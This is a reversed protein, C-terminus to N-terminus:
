RYGRWAPSAGAPPTQWAWTPLVHVSVSTSRDAYQIYLTTQGEALAEVLGDQVLRAVSMNGIEYQLGPLDNIRHAGDPFQGYVSVSRLSGAPIRLPRQEPAVDLATPGVAPVVTISVDRYDVRGDATGAVVDILLPGLADGPVTYQFQAPLDTAFDIAASAATLVLLTVSTVAADGSVQIDISQGAQVIAGSTPNDISLTIVPAAFLRSAAAASSSRPRYDYPESGAQFGVSSFATDSDPPANLTEMVHQIVDNHRTSAGHWVGSRQWSVDLGGQQSTLTVILDSAPDLFIADLLDTGSQYGDLVAALPMLVFRLLIELGDTPFPEASTVIAHSPIITQDTGDNLGHIATSRTQLDYVAGLEIPHSQHLSRLNLKKNMFEAGRSDDILYDAMQSGYHPTNLTILRRVLGRDDPGRLHLRTLIGGMSHAVVDVRGASYGKERLRMLADGIADPVVTRNSYFSWANTQSYDARYLLDDTWDPIVGESYASMGQTMTDFAGRDSWIGHVFVVPARYVDFLYNLAPQAAHLYFVQLALTVTTAGSEPRHRPHTYAIQMESGSLSVLETSGADDRGSVVITYHAPDLDTFSGLVQFLTSQSGDACIRARSKFPDLSDAMLYPSDFMGVAPTRHIRHYVRIRSVAPPASSGASQSYAFATAASWESWNGANDQHRVRWYYIRDRALPQLDLTRATLHDADRGSDFLAALAGSPDALLQWQSAAHVDAPDPDAFDSCALDVSDAAIASGDAPQANLPRLPPANNDGTLIRFQYFGIDDDGDEGVRVFYLGDIPCTWGLHADVVGSGSNNDYGLQSTGNVNYLWLETNLYGRLNLTELTYHRGAVAYFRFYDRDGRDSMTQKVPAGFDEILLANFPTDNPEGGADWVAGQDYRNLVRIAYEGRQDNNYDGVRLFYDGEIPCTWAIRSYTRGSGGGRNFALQSTGNTDYLWLEPQIGYPDLVDFTYAHGGLAHLVFWDVDSAPQISHYQAPAGAALPVAAWRTDNPEAAADRAFQPAPDFELIRLRYVGIHDSFYDGVRVYYVGDAPCTWVIRSQVDGSGGGRNYALQGSGATDLLWLETVIGAADLTEVQYTHGAQANFQVYDRDGHPDITHRQSELGTAIPSATAASDDPEFFDLAEGATLRYPAAPDFDSDSGGLVELFYVGPLSTLHQLTESQGAPGSSGGVYQLNADYLRLDYDKGAPVVLRANIWRDQLVRIPYRDVDGAHGITAELIQTSDLGVTAEDFTDNPEYPDIIPLATPATAFSWPEGAVRRGQSDHAIVKWFYFRGPELTPSFVPSILNVALPASEEVNPTTALYVDYRVGGGPPEDGGSWHLSLPLWLDAAGRPPDPNNPPAPATAASALIRLQYAGADTNGYDRVRVYYVGTLPCTWALRSQVGGGGNSRAYLRQNLSADYLWLETTLGAAVDFTEIQYAVGEGASFRFWDDDSAPDISLALPGGDEGILRARDWTDNPEAEDDWPAAEDLGRFLRLRYSGIDDNGYDGVRILYVGDHRCLWSLRSYADGTGGGRNYALQNQENDDFLWIEPAVGQPSLAELTYHVGRRAQFRFYDRDGFPQIREDHLQADPELPAGNFRSDNPEDASDWAAGEDAAPLIRIAYVGHQDSFYDAVRIYYVGSISCEFNLRTQVDGTGNSRAYLLQQTGNTHYLWVETAIGLVDLTELTYRRGAEAYFELYDIDGIPEISRQQITGDTLIPAAANLADDPEYIDQARASASAFLVALLAIWAPGHSKTLM